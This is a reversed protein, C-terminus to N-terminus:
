PSAHSPYAIGAPGAGFARLINATIAQVQGSPCRTTGAPCPALSAIWANTGTAIVGARSTPDTYYTMDSYAYGGLPANVPSRALVQVRPGPQGPVVHDYDYRVVHPLQAGAALHTGAFPWATPDTVVLPADIGYGGYTDGTIESAPANAPPQAWTNGTADGPDTAYIPDATPDRYDVMERDAGLASPQLRVHRLIPSAGFFVANVGHALAATIGNRQALTWCEDHGLSLFVKHNLLLAPDEAVGIDSVYSVDLGHREVFEVLPLENGLFDGAGSGYAYPRDYSLVRARNAYTPTTGPRGGGYLDYGGYTNWAQWTLDSNQVVYTAHSAPDAVTLPVYSQQGGSAILKLLYDGPPWSSAIRVTM